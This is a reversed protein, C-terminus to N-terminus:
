LGLRSDTFKTNRLIENGRAVKEPFLTDKADIHHEIIVVIEGKKKPAKRINKKKTVSM